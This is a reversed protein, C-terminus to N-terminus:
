LQQQVVDAACEGLAQAVAFQLGGRTVALGHIAAVAIVFRGVVPAHRNFTSLSTPTTGGSTSVMSRM